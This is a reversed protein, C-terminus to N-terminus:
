SGRAPNDPVGERPWRELAALHADQMLKALRVDRVM